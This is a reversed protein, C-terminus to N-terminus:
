DKNKLVLDIYFGESSSMNKSLDIAGYYESVIRNIIWMGMGTGIVDGANTVKDTELPELIRRPNKKYSESLGIGNDSYRILIGDEQSIISIFIKKDDSVKKEFSAVSNAILNNLISELEYPFCKFEVDDMTDIIEINKPSLSEKWSEILKSVLDSVSTKRMRRKDRRVSEITVKFWSTFAERAVSAKTIYDLASQMDKDYEIAEKAMVINLNLKHTVDKIEHVYTNTVIGTTALVRLMQIENELDRITSDKKDVLESVKKVDIVPSQKPPQNSKKATEENKQSEQLKKKIEKEIDETPHLEDYYRNLLRCVYQRDREFLRITKEIFLRLLGFEKTEVIGQRNAQDPLHINTRSIYISGHMQDANVRWSGTDHSIAAPSKNKRAALMLWDSSSSKPDGYPRVRFGDRYIRIGGFISRIDPRGTIDKYYYKERDAKTANLKAYYLTGEFDGITNEINEKSGIIENFSLVKEIPKGQFYDREFNEFGAGTMIEDFKDSFDFEDRYINVTVKGSSEAVFHVKYDYAFDDSDQLVAAEEITTTTEFFYVNFVEKFEPPILTRLNSKISDVVSKDWKDRLSTLKFISGTRQFNDDVIKNVNPNIVDSLFEDFGKTSPDLDATIDTIRQGFEFRSWDVDWILHEEESVTLLECKDAIRDLAFRGIGKAGTQIRGKRTKYQIKKSSSGITMWHKLIIEETMGTGNDGIYLTDTENEYYLFCISADADYTNKVLELIAGDLKSVNERGILKATYADVNFPVKSM